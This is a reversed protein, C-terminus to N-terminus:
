TEKRRAENGRRGPDWMRNPIVRHITGDQRYIILEKPAPPQESLWKKHKDVIAKDHENLDDYNM